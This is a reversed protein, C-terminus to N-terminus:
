ARKREGFRQRFKEGYENGTRGTKKPKDGGKEGGGDRGEGGSHSEDSEGDGGKKDASDDGKVPIQGLVDEFIDKGM